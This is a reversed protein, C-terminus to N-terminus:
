IVLQTAHLAPRYFAPFSITLSIKTYISLELLYVQLFVFCNVTSSSSSSSSVSYGQFLHFYKCLAKTFVSESELARLWFKVHRHIKKLMNTLLFFFQQASTQVTFPAIQLQSLYPSYWYVSVTSSHLEAWWLGIILRRNYM